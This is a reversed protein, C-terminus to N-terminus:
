RKPIKKLLPSKKLNITNRKAYSIINEHPQFWEGTRRYKKFKKHLRSEAARDGKIMGIIYLKLPCDMQMQRFRNKINLTFGIKIAVDEAQIFYVRSRRRGSARLKRSEKMYKKYLEPCPLGMIEDIIERGITKM